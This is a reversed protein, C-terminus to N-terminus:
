SSPNRSILDMLIQRQLLRFLIIVLTQLAHLIAELLGEQRGFSGNLADLLGAQRGISGNLVDLQANMKVLNSTVETAFKTEREEQRTFHAAFLSRLERDEPSNFFQLTSTTRLFEGTDSPSGPGYLFESTGTSRNPNPIAISIVPPQDGSLSPDHHSLHRDSGPFQLPRFRPINNAVSTAPVFSESTSSSDSM